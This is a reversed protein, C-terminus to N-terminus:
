LRSLNELHSACLPLEVAFSGDAHVVKIYMVIVVFGPDFQVCRSSLLRARLCMNIRM